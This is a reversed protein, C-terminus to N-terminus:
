PYTAVQSDDEIVCRGLDCAITFEPKGWCHATYTEQGYQQETLELADTKFNCGASKALKEATVDHVGIRREQYYNKPLWTRALVGTNAEMTLRKGAEAVADEFADQVTQRVLVPGLATGLMPIFYGAVGASLRSANLVASNGGALIQTVPKGKADVVPISIELTAQMTIKDINLEAIRPRLILGCDDCETGIVVEEFAGKAAQAIADPLSQDFNLQWENLMGVIFLGGEVEDPLSTKCPPQVLVKTTITSLEVNAPAAPNHAVKVVQSCGCAFLTLLLLVAVYM